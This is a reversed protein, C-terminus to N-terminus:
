RLHHSFTRVQPKQATRQDAHQESALFRWRARGGRRSGSGWLVLLRILAVVAPGFFSLREVVQRDIKSREADVVNAVDTRRLRSGVMMWIAPNLPLRVVVHLSIAARLLQDVLWPVPRM